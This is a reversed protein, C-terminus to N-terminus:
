NYKKKEATIEPLNKHGVQIFLLFTQFHLYGELVSIGSRARIVCRNLYMDCLEAETSYLYNIHIICLIKEIEKM